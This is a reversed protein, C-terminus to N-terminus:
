TLGYIHIAGTLVRSLMCTSLKYNERAPFYVAVQTLLTEQAEYSNCAKVTQYFLLITQQQHHHQQQPQKPLEWM